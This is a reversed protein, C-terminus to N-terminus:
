ARSQAPCHHCRQEGARGAQEQPLPELDLLSKAEECPPIQASGAKRGRSPTATRGTGKGLLEERHKERCAAGPAEQRQAAYSYPSDEAFGAQIQDVAEGDWFGNFM